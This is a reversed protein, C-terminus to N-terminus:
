NLDVSVNADMDDAGECSTDDGLDQEGDDDGHKEDTEDGSDDDAVKMAKGKKYHALSCGDEHDM